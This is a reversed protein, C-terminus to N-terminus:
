KFVGKVFERQEGDLNNWILKSGEDGIEYWVEEIALEDKDDVAATINAIYKDFTAQGSTMMDAMKKKQKTINPREFSNHLAIQTKRPLQSNWVFLDFSADEEMFQDLLLKQDPTFDQEQQHIAQQVENASAFETGGFGLTALARGIASTECNEMASTRNIQSAARIEEAHGTAVTIGNHAIRCKMVVRNPTNEIIDTTIAWDLGGERERFNQIRRAVTLYNKGHINVIGDNNNTM